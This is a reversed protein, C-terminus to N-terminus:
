DVIKIKFNINKNKLNEGKVFTDVNFVGVKLFTVDISGVIRNENSQVYDFKFRIIKEKDSTYISSIASGEVLCEAPFTFGLQATKLMYDSLNKFNIKIPHKNNVSFTYEKGIVVENDSFFVHIDKQNIFLSRDEKKSNDVLVTLLELTKEETTRRIGQVANSAEIIIGISNSFVVLVRALCVFSLIFLALPIYFVQNYFFMGLLFFVLCASVAIVSRSLIYQPSLYLLRRRAKRKVTKLTKINKALVDFDMESKSKQKQMEDELNKEAQKQENKYTEQLLKIGEPFAAIAITLVPLVFGALTLVLTGYTQFIIEEM